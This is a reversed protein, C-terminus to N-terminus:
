ALAMVDMCMDSLVQKGPVCLVEASSLKHMLTPSNSKSRAQLSGQTQYWRAHTEELVPQQSGCLTAILSWLRSFWSPQM